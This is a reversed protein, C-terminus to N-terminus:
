CRYDVKPADTSWVPTLQSSIKYCTDPHSAEVISVGGSPCDKGRPFGSHCRSRGIVQGQSNDPKVDVVGRLM